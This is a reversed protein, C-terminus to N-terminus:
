DGCFNRWRQQANTVDDPRADSRDHAGTAHKGIQNQNRRYLEESRSHCARECRPSNRDALHTRRLNAASVDQVDARARNRRTSDDAEKSRQRRYPM